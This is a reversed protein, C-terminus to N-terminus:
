KNLYIYNQVIQKKSNKKEIFFVLTMQPLKSPRTYWKKLQEETFKYIEGRKVILIGEEEKACIRGKDRNYLEV